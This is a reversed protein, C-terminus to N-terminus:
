RASSTALDMYGAVSHPLARSGVLALTMESRSVMKPTAPRNWDGVQKPQPTSRTVLGLQRAAGFITDCGANLVLSRVSLSLPNFLLCLRFGVPLDWCNHRDTM